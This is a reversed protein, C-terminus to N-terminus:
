RPTIAARVADLDVAYDPPHLTVPRLVAGAMAACAGYMDYSPEFAVIEDGTDLLALLTAALAESAGCTALVETDPDVTMGYFRQQHEAVAHRLAPVGILPP